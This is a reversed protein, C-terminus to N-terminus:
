MMQLACYNNTAIEEVFFTGILGEFNKLENSIKKFPLFNLYTFSNFLCSKM